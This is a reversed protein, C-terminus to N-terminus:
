RKWLLVLIQELGLLCIAALLFYHWLAKGEMLRDISALSGSAAYFKDRDIHALQRLDGVALTQLNSELANVNVAASGVPEGDVCVRYFGCQDAKPFFVAAENKGFEINGNITKNSPDRFEVVKEKAMSEVTLFCQEGAEFSRTRFTQPRLNKIIEHVLPVFLTHRAIDSHELSCSFNCLLISGLGVTKQAMAINRDDYRMLIQGKQKVRETSFFRYFRLESLEGSERFRRLLSHDFNAESLSAYGGKVSLDVQGSIEFPLVFDGKSVETLLKLNHADGGGIHFYAISGGDTLYNLLLEASDRSLENIGSLILLQAKSTNFINLEDSRILSAVVTAHKDELFPNIARSLYRSGAMDDNKNDDSVLLVNVKDAVDLTFYRHNDVMLGDDPITLQGEYYCSQRIRIRFVASATMYPGLSVEQKLVEDGLKLELGVISSKSSYNALKCVIQIPEAVTPLVPQVGVDTIAVNQADKPGVGVFLLEIDKPVVEFKVSSWNTRQFDSVIHIEKRWARLNELQRVAERVAADIDCREQTLRANQIDKRLFFINDSPGDYSSYPTAGMLILNVRDPASYHDLIKGAAVKAHLFPKVGGQSYGMSASADILIIAAKGKKDDKSVVATRFNLIPKLFALLILLILLTRVLLILLHRLRYLRSQSAKAARIFRLTPFVMNRPTRRTMIHVLLPVVLAASGIWLAPNSFFISGLPFFM